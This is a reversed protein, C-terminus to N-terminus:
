NDPAGAQVWAAIIDVEAQALRPARKPMEGAVVLKVLLSNAPGGAIVAPGDQGGRMIAAYDKLSLGAATQDGGHCKICRQEFIPMVDKALSVAAPQAAAPTQTAGPAQMPAVAQTAAPAHTPAAGNGSAPQAVPAAASCATLVTILIALVAVIPM